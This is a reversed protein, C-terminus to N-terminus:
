AVSYLVTMLILYVILYKRIYSSVWSIQHTPQLAIILNVQFLFIWTHRHRFTQLIHVFINHSTIESLHFAALHNKKEKYNGPIKQAYTM